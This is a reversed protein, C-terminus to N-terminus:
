SLVCLLVNRHFRRIFICGVGLPFSLVFVVMPCQLLGCSLNASLACHMGVKLTASATYNVNPLIEIPDKFMVRFTNASGDCSFGTDNQGLITNSETHLIQHDILDCWPPLEACVDM